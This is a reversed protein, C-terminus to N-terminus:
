VFLVGSRKLREQLSSVGIAGVSLGSQASMAAARGAAEGTLAAVPIVRTIEWGEGSASIIRGAALLNDFGKHYLCSYPIQYHKGKKRFDGASGIANDFAVALEEGTFVYEGDLRRIKRYQPMMPLMTVDRENRGTQKLKEFLLKRGTLVFETVEGDGRFMEMGQPHGNGFLDSGASIWKRFQAMNGNEAFARAAELNTWHAVYSLYNDGLVTPVGARSLVTANGTADIIVKAGYFERGRTNEVILGRCHNGEMVPCTILSDLLLTVRNQEMFEDLAMAFLTPSFHTAYRGAAPRRGEKWDAPLDDFGYRIALRLLEESIGGTMQTGKGDCLPEYWSILGITALGGLAISKEILLVSAGERAAAAAASVGAIGGGAVIVDYTEKEIVERKDEFKM